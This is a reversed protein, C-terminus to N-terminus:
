KGYVTTTYEGIIGLINQASYDVYKIEKISGNRAAAKISADGTAILGFYSKSTATGVKDYNLDGDGVAAPTSVETYLTGMPYPTACGSALVCVTLLIGLLVPLKKM